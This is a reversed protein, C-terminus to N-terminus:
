FCISEAFILGNSTGYSYLIGLNGPFLDVGICYLFWISPEVSNSINPVWDTVAFGHIGRLKDLKDEIDLQRYQYM